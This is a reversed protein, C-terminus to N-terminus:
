GASGSALGGGRNEHPEPDALELIWASWATDARRGPLELAGSITQVLGTAFFTRVQLADAGTLRAVAEMLGLHRQRVAERVTEDAAAAYGQLVVQGVTRDRRLLRVYATGLAVLTPEAGDFAAEIRDYAAHVVELFLKQKTGFMQVIRPHSIGARGAIAELRTGALGNAAFEADAAEIIGARRAAAPLRARGGTM